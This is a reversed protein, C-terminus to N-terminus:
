WITVCNKKRDLHVRLSELSVSSADIVYLTAPWFIDVRCFKLLHHSKALFDLFIFDVDVCDEVKSAHATSGILQEM